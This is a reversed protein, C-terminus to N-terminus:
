AVEVTPLIARLNAAQEETLVLKTADHFGVGVTVVVARRRAGSLGFKRASYSEVSNSNSGYYSEKKWNGGFKEALMQENSEVKPGVAKNKAM